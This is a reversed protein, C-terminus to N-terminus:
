LNIELKVLGTGSTLFKGVLLNNTAVNTFAGTTATVYALDGAVVNLATTVYVRGKTMVSVSDNIQYNASTAFLARSGQHSFVAIGVVPVTIADAWTLVQKQKDTGRKLAVGFEIVGEAIYSDINRVTTSDAIQGLQGIDFNYAYQTM